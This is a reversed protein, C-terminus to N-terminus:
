APRDQLLVRRPRITDQHRAAICVALGDQDLVVPPPSGTAVEELSAVDLSRGSRLMSAQKRDAVLLHQGALARAHSSAHSVLMGGSAASVAADLDPAGQVTILGSSLRRLSCLHGVTGLARALDRALSRIYTGPGCSVDLEITGGSVRRVRIEHIIVEREPPDVDSGGRALRHLARGGQKVASFVPVVQRVRGTFRQAAAHVADADLSPVDAQQVIQGSADLTDTQTGLQITAEYEKDHGTLIPVLKRSEGLCVVLLGTADPDLTGAHGARLGAARGLRRVCSASTLGPPKDIPVIM